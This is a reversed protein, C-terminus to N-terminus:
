AKYDKGVQLAQMNLDFLDAKRAPIVKHLAEALSSDQVCGTKAILAGLLIMNALTPAGMEMALKTAPVYYAEVDTRVVKRGILASDLFIKGGPQVANEYKDLSPNNMVMLVNPENVIPSGVPADSLIVNCGYKTALTQMNALCDDSVQQWTQDTIWDPYLSMGIVDWKAGHQKLGDFMWTYQSLKNGKDLHVIVKADPYVAKVANYGANVYAAFNAMNKSARGTVALADAGDADNWLMGDSTENGVQVWEVDINREKLATLVDRTHDAVAQKMQEFSYDKWAAPVYQKGPDAWTDSYHFDIMLRMGLKHARWAKAVVDDKGCWGGDPNVWVRLRISNMGLDRLLAMCEQPKGNADYFLTGNSELETLWSVDAGKAFGTMDYKKEQEPTAADDNSCSTGTISFMLTSALLLAKGIMNKM